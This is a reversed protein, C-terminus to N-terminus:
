IIIKLAFTNNKELYDLNRLGLQSVNKFFLM